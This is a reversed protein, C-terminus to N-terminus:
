AASEGLVQQAALDRAAVFDTKGTGLVPVRDVTLVTKPVMLETAGQQRAWAQLDRATAAERDTVLVLQEGKRPDPLNVVVHLNEPWLGSALAEVATLSVMEGAIKAFRKARGRISVFGRDDIAVIDGTDYWGQPPPELQGPNEARLYGLMVNPGSVWLRRGEDIGPVTELRTEIGPLLRGVTGPKYHMPTNVAIVPACETAGYGEFVRLGFKEMWTQRTEERLKEAGAFVYRLSYFDYPHAVRAYGSLFTDTGFLITANAIYAAEPVIRYHLPSPYLFTRTGSLLPLLLGGTLGFSHFVPLANFVTDSPNFDVRAALQSCNALLNAHSLVVGKPTGESGSTFLVVAPDQPDRAAGHLGLRALVRRGLGGLKDALGIEARLDELYVLEVEAALAEAAAELRAAEIFRRSTYVTEIEATRCAAIMNAAGASFNLMAPVRGYAQLGFLTVAVGAANPLLIGATAGQPVQQAMKRGLILSGLLLRDYTLPQYTIDELVERGGGQLSRAELLADFLSRARRNQTLFMMQSMVDYLQQGMAQRRARGKLAAPVTFRRPELVTVTIKPFLRRRLKGKLRSFYSYQAGDIRVPVVTAGAKDAVMGPGEYIKMLSGTVTLRGEPFIVCHKGEAVARILAKTSLPRTPDMPFAEVLKMFPRVWWRQAMKSDIAFMPRGPLVAALLPGDLFSAHNVVIVAKDGAAELHELGRVEIRNCLRFLSLALGKMLHHPLLRCAKVAVLVNALAVVLFIEAISFGLTLLLYSIGSAAVMFLANIVNNGAITRARERPVAESQLIAYLPVIFFGAAASLLLLDILIRWAGALALYDWLGLTAGAPALRTSAFYLDLSFAAMGLAGFPVTRASIEGKLLRGCLISGLAIGVSFVTFFLTLVDEDGGLEGQVFAPAQTLFVFGVLWFWSIGLISLFIVEREAAHRLLSLTEGFVNPNLRLGPAAPPAKPIALSALLGCAAVALVLGMVLGIGNARLVVQAGVIMGFLIALSTGAEIVANGSVLEDPKLHDPLIGYKLPGFLASQSGMLFLVALLLGPSETAFGLAALGMVGLEFVKVARILRAKDFKDALQGATASFLFFPLMFLGGALTVLLKGQESDQVLRFTILTVLATRFLNDNFAGLFQTLFLPLFRRRALIGYGHESM